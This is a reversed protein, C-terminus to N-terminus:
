STKGLKQQIKTLNKNKNQALVDRDRESRLLLVPKNLYTKSTIKPVFNLIKHFGFEFVTLFFVDTTKM